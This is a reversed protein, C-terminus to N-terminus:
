RPLLDLVLNMADATENVSLPVLPRKVLPPEGAPVAVRSWEAVDTGQVVVTVTPPSDLTEVSHLLEHEQLYSQGKSYTQERELVVECRGIHEYVYGQEVTRRCIFQGYDGGGSIITYTKARLSGMLLRSAFNWQHSHAGLESEPKTWVHLRVTWKGPQDALRIKTFGNPHSFAAVGALRPDSEGKLIRVLHKRLYGAAVVEDVATLLSGGSGDITRDLFDRFETMPDSYNM